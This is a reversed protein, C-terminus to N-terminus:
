SLPTGDTNVPGTRRGGALCGGFEPILCRGWPDRGMVWPRRDGAVIALLREGGEVAASRAGASVGGGPSAVAPAGSTDGGFPWQSWRAGGEGGGALLPKPLVRFM